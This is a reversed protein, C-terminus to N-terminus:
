FGLPISTDGTGNGSDIKFSWTTVTTTCNNNFDCVGAEIKAIYTAGSTLFVGNPFIGYTGDSIQSVTAPLTVGSSNTLVFKSEVNKVPESFTVKPVVDRYATAHGAPPYMKKITPKVTDTQGTINIVWSKV